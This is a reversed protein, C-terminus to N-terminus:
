KSEKIIYYRNYAPLGQRLVDMGIPYLSWVFAVLFALPESLPLHRAVIYVLAFTLMSICTVFVGMLISAIPYIAVKIHQIQRKRWLSTNNM